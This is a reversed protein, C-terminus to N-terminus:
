QQEVPSVTPKSIETMESVNISTILKEESSDFVGEKKAPVALFHKTRTTV